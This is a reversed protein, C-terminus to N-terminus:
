ISLCHVNPTSALKSTIHYNWMILNCCHNWSNAHPQPLFLCPYVQNFSMTQQTYICPQPSTTTAFSQIVTNSQHTQLHNYGSPLSTAISPQIVNVMPQTWLRDHSSIDCNYKIPDCHGNPMSSFQSTINHKWRIQPITPYQTPCCHGVIHTLIQTTSPFHIAIALKASQLKPTLLNQTSWHHGVFCAM